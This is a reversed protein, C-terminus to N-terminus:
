IRSRYLLAPSHDLRGAIFVCGLPSFFCNRNARLAVAYDFANKDAYIYAPRLMMVVLVALLVWYDSYRMLETTLLELGSRWEEKKVSCSSPVLVAFASLLFFYTWAQM